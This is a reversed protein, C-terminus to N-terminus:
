GLEDTNPLVVFSKYLHEMRDLEKAHREEIKTIEKDKSENWHDRDKEHDERMRKIELVAYRLALGLFGVATINKVIDSGMSTDPVAIQLIITCLFSGKAILTDSIM